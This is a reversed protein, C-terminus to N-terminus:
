AELLYDNKLDCIFGLLEYKAANFKKHIEYISERSVNANYLEKMAGEARNIAKVLAKNAKELEALAHQLTEQKEISDM